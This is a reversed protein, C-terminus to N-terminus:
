EAELLKMANFHKKSRLHNWMSNTPMREGCRCTRYSRLNNLSLAKIRRLHTRTKLHEDLRMRQVHRGCECLVIEIQEPTRYDVYEVTSVTKPTKTVKKTSKTKKSDALDFSICSRSDSDSDTSVTKPTKTVKKTCETKTVKKTSKTKSKTNTSM